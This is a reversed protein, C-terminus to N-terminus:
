LYKCIIKCKWIVYCEEQDFSWNLEYYLNNNECKIINFFTRFPLMFGWLWKSTISLVSIKSFIVYLQCIIKELIKLKVSFRGIFDYTSNWDTFCIFLFSNQYFNPLPNQNFCNNWRGECGITDAWAGGHLGLPQFDGILVM